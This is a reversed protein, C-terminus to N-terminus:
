PLLNNSQTKSKPLVDIVHNLKYPDNDVCWMLGAWTVPQFYKALVDGHFVCYMGICFMGELYYTSDFSLKLLDFCLGKCGPM